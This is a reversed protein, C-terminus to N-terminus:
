IGISCLRLIQQLEFGVCHIIAQEAFAPVENSPLLTILGHDYLNAAILM